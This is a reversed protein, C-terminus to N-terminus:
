IPTPAAAVAAAAAPEAASAPDAAAAEVEAAAAPFFPEAGGGGDARWWPAGAEFACPAAGCVGGRRVELRAAQLGVAGAPQELLRRGEPGAHPVADPGGARLRARLAADALPAYMTDGLLPCGAAALQARIQHTRGTLLEVRVERAAAGEPLGWAARAAAGLPAAPGAGLVRLAAPAAGPAPADLALMHAPLQRRRPGPALWHILLGLPPPAADAAVAARYFKRLPRDPAEAAAGVAAAAAAADVPADAAEEGGEAGGGAPAAGGVAGDAASAELVLANFRAVFAADKGLVLVGETAADLRTTVRLMGPLNVAAAAGALACELANSVTPVAPVGAPKSVVVFDAGEALVRARWDAAHFEPVRKPACHVRLYAHRPLAAAPALRRPVARAPSRDPAAALGAARAPPMSAAAAAPLAPAVESGHVAGFRVLAAALRAPLGLGEAVLEEVPGARPAILHEVWDGAAACVAASPPADAVGAALAELSPRAELRM